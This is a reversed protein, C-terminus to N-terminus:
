LSSNALNMQEAPHRQINGERTKEAAYRMSTPAGGAALFVHRTCSSGRGRARTVDPTVVPSRSKGVDGAGARDLDLGGGKYGARFYILIQKSM